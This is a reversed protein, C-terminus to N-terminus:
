KSKIWLIFNLVEFHSHLDNSYDYDIYIYIYVYKYKTLLTLFGGILWLGNFKDANNM